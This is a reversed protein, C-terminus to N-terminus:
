GETLELMEVAEAGPPTEPATIVILEWYTRARALDGFDLALYGLELYCEARRVPDQDDPTFLAAALELDARATAPDVLLYNTEVASRGRWLLAYPDEPRATIYEGLMGLGRKERIIAIPSFSTHVSKLVWLRGLAADALRPRDDWDELLEIAADLGEGNEAMGVLALIEEDSLAATNVAYILVASVTIAVKYM